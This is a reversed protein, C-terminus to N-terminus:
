TRRSKARKQMYYSRSRKFSGYTKYKRKGNNRKKHMREALDYADKGSGGKITCCKDYLDHFESM